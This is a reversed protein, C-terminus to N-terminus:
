GVNETVEKNEKECQAILLDCELVEAHAASLEAEANELDLQTSYGIELSSKTIEVNQIYYKEQLDLYELQKKLTILESIKSRLKYECSKKESDLLYESFEANISDIETELEAAAKNLELEFRYIQRYEISSRLYKKEDSSYSLFLQNELSKIQNENDELAAEAAKLSYLNSYDDLKSQEHQLEISKFSPSNENYGEFVLQFIDKIEEANITSVLVFAAMSASLLRIFKKM